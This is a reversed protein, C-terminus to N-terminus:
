REGNLEAAPPAAALKAALAAFPERWIEDTGTQRRGIAILSAAHDHFGYLLNLEAARHILPLRRPFLRVGEDLVALHGRNPRAARDRAAAARRAACLGQHLPQPWCAGPSDPASRNM